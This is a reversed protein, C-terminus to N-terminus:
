KIKWSKWNRQFIFNNKLFGVSDVVQLYHRIFVSNISYRFSFYQEQLSM